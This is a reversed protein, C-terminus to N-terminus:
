KPEYTFPLKDGVQLWSWYDACYFSRYDSYNGHADVLTHDVFMQVTSTGTMSFRETSSASAGDDNTIITYSTVSPKFPTYVIKLQKFSVRVFNSDIRTVHHRMDTTSDNVILKKLSDNYTVEYTKFGQKDSNGAYLSRLYHMLSGYYAKKRNEDWKQKERKSGQLQEFICEGGYGTVRTAIDYRFLKLRYKIRYGLKPNEIILFDPTTATLVNKNLTFEIIDPNVIKCSQANNTIGLFKSIFITMLTKRQRDEIKNSLKGKKTADIVVEKLVTLKEKMVFDVRQPGDSVMLSKQEANYGVISAAINYNGPEISTFFFNGKDDTVTYKESGDIFVTVAQLPEGKENKINGSIPYTHQASATVRLLLLLAVCIINKM